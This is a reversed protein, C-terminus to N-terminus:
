HILNLEDSSASLYKHFDRITGEFDDTALPGAFAKSSALAIQLKELKERDERNVESWLAIRNTITEEDLDDGYVSMTWRVDVREVNVPRLALSVLLSASQSAVQIPFVSFLSSRHRQQMNLKNSGQGRTPINDPYNAHYSTFVDGSPGKSCLETPTYGRLTEPHVVSLHYGEMFNEVLCKWNCAWQEEQAHVVRFHETEYPSLLDDLAGLQSVLPKPNDSLNVYIFGRWIESAFEPLKCSKRDFSTNDMNNARVLQGDRAYSWAHYSCVFRKTNGSGEMLQMGRHRCVNSMARINGDDGRAIILPENLIKTTIFDGANALEDVRGICHWGKNLIQSKEFEFFEPSTYFYGPLSMPSDDPLDVTNKLAKRMDVLNGM